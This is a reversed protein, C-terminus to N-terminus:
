LLVASPSREIGHRRHVLARRVSHHRQLRTQSAQLLAWWAGGGAVPLHYSCCVSPLSDATRWHRRKDVQAVPRLIQNVTKLFVM